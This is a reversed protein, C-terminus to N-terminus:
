SQRAGSWTRKWQTLGILCMILFIGYLLATLFLGRSIYLPIYILDAVIWFYWNELRKRCLLFQAALSLITTLGDFIPAAGRLMTLLQVVLALSAPITIALAIWEGRRTRSIELTGRNSGGHLWQWWGYIGLGFYVIQLTMDAYLRTSLFLVFFVLNNALGIPWSVVDERVVLWVCIGGTVFGLVETMGLSWLGLWSLGIMGAAVVLMVFWELASTRSRIKKALSAEM